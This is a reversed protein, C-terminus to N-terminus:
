RNYRSGALILLAIGAALGAAMPIFTLVSQTLASCIGSLILGIGIVFVGIGALTCYAAKDEEKVKDCHYRIILEMKQKKWIVLGLGAFVFGLIVFLASVAIYWVLDDMNKGDIGIM